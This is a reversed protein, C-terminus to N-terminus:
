DKIQLCDKYEECAKIDARITYEDRKIYYIKGTWSDDFWAILYGYPADLGAIERQVQTYYYPPIGYKNSMLKIHMTIDDSYKKVEIRKQEEISIEKKYYKEGYKSVLKAEVPILYHEDEMTGDYNISMFPYDKFIFSHEPKDVKTGLMEEAKNLIFPELDAGKKVIAKEGVAIEEDTIGKAQKEIQLAPIDRYLNVGLLVSSDSGGFTNKRSMTFEEKSLESAKIGLTLIEKELIKVEINKM